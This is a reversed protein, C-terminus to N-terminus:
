FVQHRETDPSHSLVYPRSKGILVSGVSNTRNHNLIVHTPQQGPKGAPGRLFASIVPNKLFTTGCFNWFNSDDATMLKHDTRIKFRTITDTTMIKIKPFLHHNLPAQGGFEEGDNRCVQQCRGGNLPKALGASGEFPHTAAPHHWLFLM